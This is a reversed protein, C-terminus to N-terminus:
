NKDKDVEHFEGELIKSTKRNSKENKTKYQEKIESINRKIWL